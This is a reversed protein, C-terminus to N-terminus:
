SGIYVSVVALREHGLERSITKRASTDVLKEAPNLSSKKPGGNIPAHWGTLEYYRKQAYAHRLGHMKCFGARSVQSSYVWLQQVYSRMSDILSGRGVKTRIDNLLQRQEITQIPIVRPKGGKTWSGKLHLFDGRDAYSPVFKISEERRLGFHAQLLLSMRTYDNTIRQFREVDLYTAKNDPAILSRKVPTMGIERYYQDNSRFMINPKDIAKAWWRIHALRNKITGVALEKKMWHRFLGMVHKQKLSSGRMRRYGLVQLDDAVQQLVQRRNRQSSFSGHAQRKCLYRLDHHLQAM